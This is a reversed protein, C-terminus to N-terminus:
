SDLLSGIRAVLRRAVRLRSEQPSEARRDALRAATRARRAGPLATVEDAAAVLDTWTVRRLRLALDLAVVAEVFDPERAIDVCSRIPTTRPIPARIVEGLPLAAMRIRLGRIPGFRLGPPVIVEVPPDHEVVEPVGCLCLASRGGIM